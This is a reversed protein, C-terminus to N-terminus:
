TRYVLLVNNGVKIAPHMAEFRRRKVAFRACTLDSTWLVWSTNEADLQEHAKKYM